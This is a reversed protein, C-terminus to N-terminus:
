RLQANFQSKEKEYACGGQEIIHDYLYKKAREYRKRITATDLGTIDSIQKRSVTGCNRIVNLVSSCNVNSMEELGIYKKM